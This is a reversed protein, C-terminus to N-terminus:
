RNNKKYKHRSNTPYFIEEVPKNYHQAIAFMLQVTPTKGKEIKIITQRTTGIANALEQQTENNELRIERVRNDIVLDGFEL